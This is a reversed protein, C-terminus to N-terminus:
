YIIYSLVNDLNVSPLSISSQQERITEEIIDKVTTNDISDTNSVSQDPEQKIIEEKQIDDPIKTSELSLENDLSDNTKEEPFEEDLLPVDGSEQIIDMLKDDESDENIDNVNSNENTPTDTNNDNEQISEVEEHSEEPINSDNIKEKTDEKIENKVPSSVEESITDKPNLDIKRQHIVADARMSKRRNESLASLNSTKNADLKLSLRNSRSPLKSISSVTDKKGESSSARTM